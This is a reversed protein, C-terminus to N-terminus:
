FSRKALWFHKCPSSHEANSHVCFTVELLIDRSTLYDFLLRNELSTMHCGLPLPFTLTCRTMSCHWPQMTGILLLTWNTLRDSTKIIPSIFIVIIYKLCLIIM